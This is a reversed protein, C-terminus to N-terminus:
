ISLSNKIYENENSFKPKEEILQEEFPTIRNQKM